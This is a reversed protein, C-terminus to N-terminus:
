GAPLSNVPSGMFQRRQSTPNRGMYALAIILLRFPVNAAFGVSGPLIRHKIREHASGRALDILTATPTARSAGSRYLAFEEAPRAAM